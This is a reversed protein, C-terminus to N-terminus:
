FLARLEAFFRSLDITRADRLHEISHEATAVLEALRQLRAEHEVACQDIHRRDLREHREAIQDIPETVELRAHRAATPSRPRASRPGRWATAARRAVCRLHGH